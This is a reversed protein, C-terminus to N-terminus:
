SRRTSRLTNLRSINEQIEGSQAAITQSIGATQGAVIQTREAIEKTASEQQSIALAIGEAVERAHVTATTIESIAGVAARAQEKMNNIQVAIDKTASGSQRALAKVENAVVAFGRGAEGARAAEITANLALLNTQAAIGDILNVVASIHGVAAVLAEVIEATALARESASTAAQASLSVKRTVDNVSAALQETAAAITQVNRAAETASSGVSTSMAGALEAIKGQVVLQQESEIEALKQLHCDILSGCARLAAGSKDRAVGGVARYWRYEGSKTKLRYLVDYATRGSRDNLCGNFAAFVRDADEPHLRDAWSGVVNPFGVTDDPAFGLLRRVEPSWRWASRPHMADGEFLEADWLGVGASRDLLSTREAEVTENHVDILAGCARLAAGSKDRAVGGVARFWRYEGGKMKLRYLVDYGTRGTRDNLCGNFAAFVREADDPHLRDSWSGVVDPFGALDDHAFGVLRRFEPSWRWASKPHMADGQFLEADWLGVGASRDLLSTREAEVREAHVDILAGCARLAAGSGDRAVGGVARFWRYDGLKMKVRYLVDYGTRGTRDNLCGNFAAFVREADEPHLRDAWSGVVDPFGVTDEPAFGVLRRFEPSWRWASRPHMADGQFLEADWLGVGASRDLLGIREAEVKEGHVDILAGCARLALGSKDRAVGGVARFWRYEGNKMKLRYFVDYGTRGSRDNLCGNFAAFVREADEPHLRDAWSGVVDPFGAMDDSAFGVLRRFEPSWRWASKAHMADGQFLEADWLGVGAYRGLLDWLQAYDTKSGSGEAANEAPNQKKWM